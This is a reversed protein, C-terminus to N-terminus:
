SKFFPNRYLVAGARIAALTDPAFAGGHRDVYLTAYGTFARLVDLALEDPEALQEPEAKKEKKSAPKEAAPAPEPRPAPAPAPASDMAEPAPNEAKPATNEDTSSKIKAM